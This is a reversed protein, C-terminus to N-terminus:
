NFRAFEGHLRIAAAAYVAHAEQPTNYYGLRYHKGNATIQAEFTGYKTTSVGKLGLKNNKSAPCNYANQRRTCIRLNSRRNDLKNGNVHDTLMGRPTNMIVRHMIIVGKGKGDIRPANRRAYGDHDCHWRYQALKEFDEDDVIAVQGKTLEIVKM